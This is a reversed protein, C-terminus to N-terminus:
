APFVTACHKEGLHTRGSVNLRPPSLVPRALVSLCSFQKLSLKGDTVVEKHTVKVKPELILRDVHTKSRV